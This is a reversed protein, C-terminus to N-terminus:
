PMFIFNQKHHKSADFPSLKGNIHVYNTYGLKTLLTFCQQRNENDWLEAYIIPKHAQLTAVGGQLVQYEYNEVDIKIGAMKKDKLLEDITKCPVTYRKGAIEQQSGAVHSLGQQRAKGMVPVIMEISPSATQGLACNEAQVNPLKYHTIIKQLVTFNDPIPEIAIVQGNKCHKSLHYTMIGINAGIDAVVSDPPLQKLFCFFDNEKSDHKLTKIKFVAFCYLYQKYGLVQQLLYKIFNKM